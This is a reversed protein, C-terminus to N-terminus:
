VHLAGVTNTDQGNKREPHPEVVFKGDCVLSEYIEHKTAWVIADSLFRDFFAQGGHGLAYMSFFRSVKLRVPTQKEVDIVHLGMEVVGKHEDGQVQVWEIPGRYNRLKYRGVFERLNASVPASPNVIQIEIDRVDNLNYSM